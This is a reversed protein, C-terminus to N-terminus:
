QYRAPRTLRTADSCVCCGSPTAASSRSRTRRACRSTDVWETGLQNPVFPWDIAFMIRDIGMEQVCCLLAPNSFNGSTTIYFHNCFIDRFRAAQRRAAVAVPRHALGPVAPDRRPARPHDQPEPVQRVRRLAGPPDGADRDRGHLGLRRPDGDPLGERLGQLLRGDGGSAADVSAPLDARRAERRARLDALVEADLFLGNTLGHIMAGKFDKKTVTRELENAAAAPDCTPLARLRRLPRSENARFRRAPRQGARRIAAADPVPSSRRRRRAMRCCRSTSVPRTWRRSASRAPISCGTPSTRIASSVRPTAALEKDWYHEELAIVPCKPKQLM